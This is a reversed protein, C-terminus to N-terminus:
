NKSKLQEMFDDIKFYEVFIAKNSFWIERAENSFEAIGTENTTFFNNKKPHIVEELFSFISKYKSTLRYFSGIYYINKEMQEESMEDKKQEVEEKMKKYLEAAAKKFSNFDIENYDIGFKNMVRNLWYSVYSLEFGQMYESQIIDSWKEQGHAHFSQWLDENPCVGITTNNYPFVYYLYSGFGKVYGRNGATGCIFSNSRKPYEKWSPLNDLLLTYENTTNRSVRVSDTPDGIAFDGRDYEIGRVIHPLKSITALYNSCKTKVLRLAEDNSIEKMRSGSIVNSKLEEMLFTKFSIM